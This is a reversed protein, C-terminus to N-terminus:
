SGPIDIDPFLAKAKRAFRVAETTNGQKFYSVAREVCLVAADRNAEM